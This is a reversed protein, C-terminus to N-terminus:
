RIIVPRGTNETGVREFVYAGSNEFILRLNRSRLATDIILSCCGTWDPELKTHKSIYIHTYKPFKEEALKEVCGIDYDMCNKLDANMKLRSSFDPLWEYAQVTALSKRESLAPFWESTTDLFWAWGPHASMVIFESSSKTNKDIWYMAEREDKKLYAFPTFDHDFASVFSAVLATIIVIVSIGYKLKINKSVEDIGLGALAALPLFLFTHSQRSVTILIAIILILLRYDKKAALILIGILSFAIYINFKSETAYYILSLQGASIVDRPNSHLANIFPAFGHISLVHTWWPASTIIGLMGFICVSLFDKKPNGFIFLFTLVSVLTFVAFEMHSLLCLGFLVGGTILQKKNGHKYYKMMAILAALSFLMGASRTLGGGLIVSQFSRPSLLFVVLSLVQVRKQPFIEKVLLYYLLITFSSIFWPLFRFLQIMPINLFQTAFGVIYFSLPSYAFPILSHNYSTYAPIVFNNKILDKTMEYFMGGDNLAFDAALIFYLRVLAGALIIIGIILIEKKKMM